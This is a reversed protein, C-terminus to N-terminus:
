PTVDTSFLETGDSSYFLFRVAEITFGYTKEFTSFLSSISTSASDVMTSFFSSQGEETALSSLFEDPLYYKYIFVNGEAALEITIGLSALQNNVAEVVAAAEESEIWAELGTANGDAGGSADPLLSLDFDETVDLTYVLAGQADLYNMRIVRLPLGMARYTSITDILSPVAAPLNAEITAADAPADYQYNYILIDPEEVGVSFRMGAESFLENMTNELLTREEGNYWETLTSAGSADPADQASDGGIGPISPLGQSPDDSELSGGATSQPPADDPSSGSACASLSFVLLLGLVPTFCKKKM